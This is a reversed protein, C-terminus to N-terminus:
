SFGVSVRCTFYVKKSIKKIVQTIKIVEKLFISLFFEGEYYFTDNISFITYM